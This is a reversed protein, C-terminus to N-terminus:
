ISLTDWVLDKENGDKQPPCSVTVKIMDSWIHEIPGPRFYLGEM